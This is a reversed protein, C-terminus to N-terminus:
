EFLGEALWNVPKEEETALHTCVQFKTAPVWWVDRERRRPTEQCLPAKKKKKRKKKKKKRKTKPPKKQKTKKQQTTPNTRTV